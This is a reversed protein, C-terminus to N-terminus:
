GTILKKQAEQLEKFRKQQKANQPTADAKEGFSQQGYPFSSNIPDARLGKATTKTAQWGLAHEHIVNFTFNLDISKPFISLGIQFSGMELDPAFSFGEIWGLLGSDAADGAGASIGMESQESEFLTSKMWNLFKIKFLPSGKIITTQELTSGGTDVGDMTPYLMQILLSMRIMNQEAEQISAAVLQLSVNMKRSTRKFTAVTDMRGYVETEKWHSQYNDSYGTLFAKLAVFYGSPLHYFEIFQAHNNALNDSGEDGNRFYRNNVPSNKTDLKEGFRFAM